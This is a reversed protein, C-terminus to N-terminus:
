PWSCMSWIALPIALSPKYWTSFKAASLQLVLEWTELDLNDLDIEWDTEVEILLGSDINVWILEDLTILEHWFVQLCREIWYFRILPM